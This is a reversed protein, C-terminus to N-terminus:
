FNRPTRLDLSQLFLVSCQRIFQVCELFLQMTQDSQLIEVKLLTQVIIQLDFVQNKQFYNYNGQMINLHLRYLQSKQQQNENQNANQRKKREQRRKAPTLREINQLGEIPKIINYDNNVM